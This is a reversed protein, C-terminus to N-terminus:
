VLEKIAIDWKVGNIYKRFVDKYEIETLVRGLQSKIQDAYWMWNGTTNKSM